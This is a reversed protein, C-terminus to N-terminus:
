PANPLHTEDPIFAYAEKKKKRMLFGPKGVVSSASRFHIVAQAGHLVNPSQLARRRLAKRKSFGWLNPLLATREGLFTGAYAVLPGEAGWFKTIALSAKLIICQMLQPTTNNACSM